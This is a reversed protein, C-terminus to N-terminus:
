ECVPEDSMIQGAPSMSGTVTWCHTPEPALENKKSREIENKYLALHSLLFFVVIAVLVVLFFDFLRRSSLLM